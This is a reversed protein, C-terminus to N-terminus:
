FLANALCAAIAHCWRIMRVWCTSSCLCRAAHSTQWVGESGNSAPLRVAALLQELAAEWEGRRAHAAAAAYRPDGPADAPTALFDGLALLSQAEKYGPSGSPLVGLVTSAEPDGQLVLLRGLGLVSAQM